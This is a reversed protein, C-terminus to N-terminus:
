GMESGKALRAAIQTGYGRVIGLHFPLLSNGVEEWWARSFDAKPAPNGFTFLPITM